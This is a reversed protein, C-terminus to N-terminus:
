RTMETARLLFFLGADGYTKPALYAVMKVARVGEEVCVFWCSTQNNDSEDNRDGKSGATDDVADMGSPVGQGLVDGVVVKDTEDQLGRATGELSGGHDWRENKLLKFLREFRKELVLEEAACEMKMTAWLDIWDEGDTGDGGPRGPLPVSGRTMEDASGNPKSQGCGSARGVEADEGVMQLWQERKSARRAGWIDRRLKNLETMSMTHGDEKKEAPM